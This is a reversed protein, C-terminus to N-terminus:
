ATNAEDLDLKRQNYKFANIGGPNVVKIALAQAACLTWAVYDRIFKPDRKQKLARLFFDDNGLLVYGGKDIMPTDALEMHTQRANLALMAPEFCAVYGMEAYRYGATRTAPAAHGCGAHPHRRAAVPDRAHDEPLMMRAINVKGGGIHTHIDIAGAMVVRGSVDIVIDAERPDAPAAVIRGGRIYLDRVEGDIGNMPDVIRGGKLRTLM